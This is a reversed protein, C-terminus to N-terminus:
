SAPWVPGGAAGGLLAYHTTYYFYPSVISYNGHQITYELFITPLWPHSYVKPGMVMTVRYIVRDSGYIPCAQCSM